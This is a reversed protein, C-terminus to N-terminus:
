RGLIRKIRKAEDLTARYENVGSGLKIALAQIAETDLTEVPELLSLKERLSDRHSELAIKQEYAQQKLQTLKGEYAAFENM